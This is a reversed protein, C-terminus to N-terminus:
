HGDHRFWRVRRSVMPVTAMIFFGAWVLGAVIGGGLWINWHAPRFTLEITQAGAPITIQQLTGQYRDIALSEGSASASWGPYDVQAVVLAGGPNDDDTSIVVRGPRPRSVNIQQGPNDLLWARSRYEPIEWVNLRDTTFAISGGPVPSITEGADTIIYRANVEQLFELNDEAEQQYDEYSELALPDVLGGVADFGYLRAADPQLATSRNDVRFPGSEDRQDELFQVLEPHDFGDLIPETTPNFRATVSFLDLVVILGLLVVAAASGLRDRRVLAITGGTLALWFTLLMLNDLAIMPRNSPDNVGLVLSAFLPIVFIVLGGVLILTGREIARLATTVSAVPQRARDLIRSLGYGALLALSLDVFFYARGAGRVRDFGPTFAYLWGHVQTYPGVAYLLGLALLGGWFFRSRTRGSVLGLGALILTAIGAYGWIETNSFPGWFDTPNSGYVTPLVMHLLALPEVSFESAERYSLESRSTYGTLELAPGLVPLTIGLALVLLVACRVAARRIKMSLISTRWTEPRGYGTLRWLEFIAVLGAGSLVLLLMPQHGGLIAMVLALSGGLALPWSNRRM